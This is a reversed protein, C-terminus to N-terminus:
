GTGVATAKSGPSGPTDLFTYRAVLVTVNDRGGHELARDVLVRAADM